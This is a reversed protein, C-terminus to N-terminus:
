RREATKLVNNIKGTFDTLMRKMDDELKRKGPELYTKRYKEEQQLIYQEEFAKSEQKKIKDLIKDLESPPLKDLEDKSMKGDLINKLQLISMNKAMDKIINDYYPKTSKQYESLINRKQMDLESFITKVNAMDGKKILDPMAQALLINAVANLLDDEAKKLEPNANKGALEAQAKATDVLLAKIADLIMRQDETPNKLANALRMAAEMDAANFDRVPIALASENFSGKGIREALQPNAMGELKTALMGGDTLMTKLMDSLNKGGIFTDKQLMDYASKDKLLDMSFPNINPNNIMNKGLDALSTVPAPPKLVDLSKFNGHSDVIQSNYAYDGGEPNGSWFVAMDGNALTTVDNVNILGFSNTITKATSLSEGSSSFKQMKLAYNPNWIGDNMYVGEMWFAVITGDALTTINSLSAWDLTQGGTLSNADSLTNGSSDFVQLNLCDPMGWSVAINGNSLASIDGTYVASDAITKVDSKAEGSSDFVQSKFHCDNNLGRENWFLAVNGNSLLTINYISADSLSTLGTITKADSMPNGYSDLIRSKISYNNYGESETWFVAIDGGSLPTIRYDGHMVLGTDDATITNEDFIPNGSPDLVRTKFSYGDAGSEEWSAIINGDSLSALNASSIYSPDGDETITIVDSPSGGSAYFIRTKVAYTDYAYSEGSEEDYYYAEGSEEAWSVGINGNALTTVNITSSYDSITNASSLPSGLLDFTQYMLCYSEQNWFVITTGDSFTAVKNISVHNTHHAGSVITNASSLTGGSSDFIQMKYSYNWGPMFDSQPSERWFVAVNGNALPDIETISAESAGIDTITTPQNPMATGSSDFAQTKICDSGEMWAAFYKEGVQKIVYQSTSTLGAAVSQENIYAQVSNRIYAPVEASGGNAVSVLTAAKQANSKGKASSQKLQLKPTVQAKDFKVQEMKNAMKDQVYEIAKALLSKKPAKQNIIAEAQYKAANIYGPGFVSSSDDRYRNNDDSRAISASLFSALVMILILIYRNILFRKLTYM